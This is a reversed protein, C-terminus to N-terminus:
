CELERNKEHGEFNWDQKAFFTSPQFKESLGKGIFDSFIVNWQLNVTPHAIRYLQDRLQSQLLIESPTGTTIEAECILVHIVRPQPPELCWCFM